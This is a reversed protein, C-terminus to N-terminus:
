CFLSRKGFFADRARRRVVRPIKALAAPEARRAADGFLRLYITGKQKNGGTDESVGKEEKRGKERKGLLNGRKQEERKKGGGLGM